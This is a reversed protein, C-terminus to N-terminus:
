EFFWEFTCLRRPLGGCDFVMVALGVNVASLQQVIREQGGGQVAIRKFLASIEERAKIWPGLDERAKFSRNCGHFITGFRIM